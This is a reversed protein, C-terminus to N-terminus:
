GCLVEGPVRIPFVVIALFEPEHTAARTPALFTLSRIVSPGDDPLVKADVLGDIAAKAAGYANGTDQVPARMRTVVVVHCSTFRHRGKIALWGFTERWEATQARTQTWHDRREANLTWPRCEYSYAAVGRRTCSDCLLKTASVASCALCIMEIRPEM